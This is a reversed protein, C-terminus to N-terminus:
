TKVKHRIITVKVNKIQYDSSSEVKIEIPIADDIAEFFRIKYPVLCRTINGAEDVKVAGRNTTPLTKSVGDVKVSTAM